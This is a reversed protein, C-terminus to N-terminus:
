LSFVFRVNNPKPCCSAKSMETRFTDAAGSTLAPKTSFSDKEQSYTRDVEDLWTNLQFTLPCYASYGEEEAKQFLNSLPYSYLDQNSKTQEIMEELIGGEREFKRAATEM